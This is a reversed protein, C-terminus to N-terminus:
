KGEQSEYYDVMALYADVLTGAGSDTCISRFTDRGHKLYLKNMEAVTESWKGSKAWAKSYDTIGDEGTSWSYLFKNRARSLPFKDAYEPKPYGEMEFWEPNSHYLDTEEKIADKWWMDYVAHGVEHDLIDNVTDELKYYENNYLRINGSTSSWDGGRSFEQGGATFKDGSGVKVEISGVNRTMFEKYSNFRSVVRRFTNTSVPMSETREPVILTHGIKITGVPLNDIDLNSGTSQSGGPNGKGGKGGPHGHFGSGKGGKYRIVAKM